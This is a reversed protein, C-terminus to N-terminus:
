LAVQAFRLVGLQARQEIIPFRKDLEVADLRAALGAPLTEGNAFSVDLDIMNVPGGFACLRIQRYRALGRVPIVDHDAAAGVDRTGIVDWGDQAYAAAGTAASAVLMLAHIARM